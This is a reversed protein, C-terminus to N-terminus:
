EKFQLITDTIYELEEEKMETHIPLSLVSSCLKETAPLSFGASVFRSFAEQKYLPLPYYIMTPIGNESLYSRIKDRLGFKIKLTFQNYSPPAQVLSVPLEGYSFNELRKHYFNAAETRAAIFKELHPLKVNLIAAQLTDLRSNCGVVKHFYKKQQGHNAIMRIKDTLAQDNTMLAGGDGMCGLNKTPFFSTCGIHGITGSKKVTGDNLIYGSGLSQANDEIVALHQEEALKMLPEMDCCQGFLHVPIIARTRSTVARRIAHLSINFTDEEVDVMVPILGLLAIVEATAVYTFAPVIVEDGPELDLAMLAIQLADTGNACGIVHNINFSNALNHEFEAVDKGRIFDSREIVSRIANMIETELKSHQSFLDVM